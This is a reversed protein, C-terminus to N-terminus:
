GKHFFFFDSLHRKLIIYKNVSLLGDKHCEAANAKMLTKYLGSSPRLKANPGSSVSFRINKQKYWIRLLTM